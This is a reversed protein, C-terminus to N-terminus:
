GSTGSIPIGCSFQKYYLQAGSCTELEVRQSDNQWTANQQSSTHTKETCKQSTTNTSNQSRLSRSFHNIHLLLPNADFEAEFGAFRCRFCVSRSRVIWSTQLITPSDYPVHWSLMLRLAAFNTGLSSLLSWFSYRMETQVSSLSCASFSGLKIELMMVPSFDQTNPYSESVLCCDKVNSNGHM